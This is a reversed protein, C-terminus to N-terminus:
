REIDTISQVQENDVVDFSLYPLYEIEDPNAGVIIAVKESIRQIATGVVQVMQVLANTKDGIQLRLAEGSANSASVLNLLM